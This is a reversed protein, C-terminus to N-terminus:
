CLTKGESKFLLVLAALQQFVTVKGTWLERLDCFARQVNELSSLESSSCPEFRVYSCRRPVPCVTGTPLMRLSLRWKKHQLLTPWLLNLYSFYSNPKLLVGRHNIRNRSIRTAGQKWCSLKSSAEGVASDMKPVRPVILKKLRLTQPRPSPNLKSLCWWNQENQNFTNHCIQMQKQLQAKASAAAGVVERPEHKRHHISKSWCSSEYTLESNCEHNTSSPTILPFGPTLRQYTLYNEQDEAVWVWAQRHLSCCCM